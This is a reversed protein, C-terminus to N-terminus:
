KADQAARRARILDILVQDLEELGRDREVQYYGSKFSKVTGDPAIVVWLPLNGGLSRPDGYKKLVEGDDLLVPYGLNMFEVLKRVARKVPPAATPDGLKEDVAVGLATVGLKERKGRLFDLYGVQGYPETLPDDHYKWFHLLVIQGGETLETLSVKKGDLSELTFAPAARGVLKKALGGIDQDRDLQDRVDKDAAAVLTELPTKRASEVLPALAEAAAQLQNEHLVPSTEDARRKLEKQLGILAGFVEGIRAADAEALLETGALQMTLAYRDGRGLFLRREVEVVRGTEADV